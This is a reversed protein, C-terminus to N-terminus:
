ELFSSYALNDTEEGFRFGTSELHEKLLNNESPKAQFGVLVRGFAAGQNRYHFLTINWKDGLSTLFDMLAGPREPFEVRFIIEGHSIINKPGRGGVMHKIHLKALENDSLDITSYGKAKLREIFIDREDQGNNFRCAVFINAEESDNARYNFETIMKKGIDKCFKRFSGKKEPIVVSLLIEKKEGIQVREVIHSLRDFNINSGSNIAILTKGEIKKEKCYKKLGALALAGAPEAITRTEQYTDQVAACIEDISVTIISDLWERIIPFTVKGIKKVAVGDVFLGVEALSIRKKATIAAKLCAADDPEVGIVKIEPRTCKVYSGIGALLGGGGVPVFIAEIEDEFDDLIEKGITGQGAIVEQDDYPHIFLMNNKNGFKKAFEFCEDFNDGKLIVEAGYKKVSDVKISPTTVPMVITAAIKMKNSSYAVGQAHNGASAAIVPGLEGRAKLKSLKNYAGRLKFSFIPQLDERKLLVINKLRKSLTEAKSLPTVQAVDYVASNEIEKLYPKSKILEM